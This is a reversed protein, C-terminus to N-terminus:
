RLAARPGSGRGSRRADLAEGPRAAPDAANDSVNARGGAGARARASTYIKELRYPTAPLFTPHFSALAPLLAEPKMSPSHGLLVRARIAAIAVMRGFVHSMPLFLLTSPRDTDKAKKSKFVPHLLEVANDVEAFFNGHSIACGKPAGTTGSTYVITA